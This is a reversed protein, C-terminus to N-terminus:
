ITLLQTTKLWVRGSNSSLQEQMTRSVPMWARIL